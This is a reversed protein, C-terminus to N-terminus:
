INSWMTNIWEFNFGRMVHSLHELVLYRGAFLLFQPGAGESPLNLHSTWNTSTHFGCSIFLIFWYLYKYQVWRMWTHYICKCKSYFEVMWPDTFICPHYPHIPSWILRFPKPKPYCPGVRHNFDTVQPIPGRFWGTFFLIHVCINPELFLPFVWWIM